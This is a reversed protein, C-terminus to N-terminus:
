NSTQTCSRRPQAADFLACPHKATEELPSPQAHTHESSIGKWILNLHLWSADRNFTYPWMPWISLSTRRQGCGPGWPASEGHRVSPGYVNSDQQLQQQLASVKAKLHEKSPSPEEQAPTPASIRRSRPRYNAAHSRKERARELNEARSSGSKKTIKTLPSRGWFCRGSSFWHRKIPSTIVM